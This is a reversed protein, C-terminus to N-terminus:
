RSYRGDKNRHYKNAHETNIMLELNELRNDDRAGNIHHVCLHSELYCKLYEEMVLRHELVYGREDANPHEPKKVLMYGGGHKIRGGKWNPNNKGKTAISIKRKAEETHETGQKAISLKERSVQTWVRGTNIKNGKVFGGRRAINFKKMWSQITPASVGCM